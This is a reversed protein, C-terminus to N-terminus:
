FFFFCFKTKTNCLFFMTVQLVLRSSSSFYRSSSASPPFLRAPHRVSAFVTEPVPLAQKCPARPDSKGIDKFLLLAGQPSWRPPPQTCRTAAKGQLLLASAALFCPGDGLLVRPHEDAECKAQPHGLLVVSSQKEPM